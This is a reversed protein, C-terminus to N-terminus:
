STLHLFRYNDRPRIGEFLYLNFEGAAIDRAIDSTRREIRGGHPAIVAVRSCERRLAVIEYDRGRTQHKTLDVFCRYSNAYPHKM